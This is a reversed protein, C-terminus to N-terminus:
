VKWFASFSKFWQPECYFFGNMLFVIVIIPILLFIAKAAILVVIMPILLLLYLSIFLYGNLPQILKEKM